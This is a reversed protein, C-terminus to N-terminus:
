AREPREYARLLDHQDDPDPYPANLYCLALLDSPASERLAGWKHPDLFRAPVDQLKVPATM